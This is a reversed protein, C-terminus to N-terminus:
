PTGAAPALLDTEQEMWTITQRLGEELPTFHATPVLRRLKEVGLLKTRAGTYRSEDYRIRGADYGVLACIMGAFERITRDYGAGINVTEGEVREALALLVGTFDAVHILERRQHGDGWLVVEDGGRGAGVIKRILDFIFHMERGDEHYGPGYLTSPVVHLYRLGFQARLALLGAYLMRKTMAYTFLSEIPQGVLYNEEVLPLREDYACSTGVAILKAQPQQDRWWALVNTNIQQNIIWQEGPHRLCFDGARTWAAFHYILEYSPHPYGRLVNADTLNCNATSLRTLQHGGQRELAAVLATGLFGTAGTIAIKM